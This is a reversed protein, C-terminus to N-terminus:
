YINTIIMKKLFKGSFLGNYGILDTNNLKREEELIYKGIEMIDNWTKPVDKNYKKKLSDGGWIYQKFVPQTRIPYIM